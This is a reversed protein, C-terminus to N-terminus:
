ARCAPEAAVKASVASAHDTILMVQSSGREVSAIRGVLGDGSIVPDDVHVGDGSGLDITVASHWVTPSRAIM